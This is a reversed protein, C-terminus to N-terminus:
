ENQASILPNIRADSFSVEDEEDMVDDILDVSESGTVPRYGWIRYLQYTSYGTGIGQAVSSLSGHNGENAYNLNIGAKVKDSIAQDLVIRLQKRDYGSNIVVGNRDFLSGSIRYKTQANGGSLSLNHSQMFADRFMLDQWDVAKINKYDELERGPRTLYVRKNVDPNLEILYKVFEYSDMMEMKKTVRQIGASGEYEIRAKGAQGQKTEIIVVGNA